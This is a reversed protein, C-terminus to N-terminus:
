QFKRNRNRIIREKGTSDIITDLTMENLRRTNDQIQRTNQSIQCGVLIGCLILAIAVWGLFIQTKTPEVPTETYLKM